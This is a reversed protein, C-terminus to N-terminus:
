NLVRGRCGESDGRVVQLATCVEGVGTTCEKGRGNRNDEHESDPAEEGAAHTPWDDELSCAMRFAGRAAM